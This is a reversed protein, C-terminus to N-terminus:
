RAQGPIGWWTKEDTAVARELKVGASTAANQIDTIAQQLSADTNPLTYTTGKFLWSDAYGLNVMYQKVVSQMGSVDYTILAM